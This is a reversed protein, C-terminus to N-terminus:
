LRVSAPAAHSLDEVTHAAATKRVSSLCIRTRRWKQLVVHFLIFDSRQARFEFAARKQICILFVGRRSLTQSSFKGTNQIKLESKLPRGLPTPSQCRCSSLRPTDTFEGAQTSVLRLRWLSGGAVCYVSDSRSLGPVCQPVGLRRVFVFLLSCFLHTCRLHRKKM